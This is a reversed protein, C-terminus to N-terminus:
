IFVRWFLFARTSSMFNSISLWPEKTCEVLLLPVRHTTAYKGHAMYVAATPGARKQRKGCTSMDPCPLGSVVFQANKAMTCLKNHTCCRGWQGLSSATVAEKKMSYSANEVNNLFQQADPVLDLIDSFLCPGNRPHGSVDECWAM